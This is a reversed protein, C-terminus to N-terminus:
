IPEGVVALGLVCAGWAGPQAPMSVHKAIEHTLEPILAKIMEAQQIHLLIDFSKGLTIHGPLVSNSLCTWTPPFDREEM